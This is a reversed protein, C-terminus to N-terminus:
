HKNPEGQAIDTMERAIVQDVKQGQGDRYRQKVAEIGASRHSQEGIHLLQRVGDGADQVIERLDHSLQGDQIGEDQAEEDQIGILKQDCPATLFEADVM